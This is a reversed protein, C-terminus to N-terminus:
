NNSNKSRRTRRNEIKIEAKENELKVEVDKTNLAMKIYAKVKEKDETIVKSVKVSYVVEKGSLPHNFDVITRGAQSTKLQALHM